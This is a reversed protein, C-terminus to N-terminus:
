QKLRQLGASIRDISNRQVEPVMGSRVTPKSGSGRSQAFLHPATETLSSIWKEITLPNGDKDVAKVRSVAKGEKDVVFSEKARNIVDQLASEHVGYKIAAEKVSDSLVVRELNSRLNTNEEELKTKTKEFSSKMELIREDLLKEIASEDFTKGDGVPKGAEKLQKMLLVNNNRFEDLKTKTQKYEEEPVVGEVDLVFGKETQKYFSKLEEPVETAQFKLAM